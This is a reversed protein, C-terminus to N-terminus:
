FEFTNKNEVKMTQSNLLLSRNSGIVTEEFRNICTLKDTRIAVERQTFNLHAFTIGAGLKVTM